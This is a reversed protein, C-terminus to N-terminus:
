KGAALRNVLYEPLKAAEMKKQVKKVDYEIRRYEITKAKSDYLVYCADSNSDRPQGVSGVNIIYNRNNELTAYLDRIPMVNIEDVMEIILPQHSHGIFCIDTTLEKYNAQADRMNMIYHWAEPEYPTSHVLQLNDIIGTPKLKKLFEKNEKTLQEATWEMSATAYPNFYSTDTLGVAAWDHNGALMVDANQKLIDICENPNPGYGVIDGLFLKQDVKQRGIDNLVAQFAEVNSHVDSYIAYKM